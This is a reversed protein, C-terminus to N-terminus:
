DFQPKKGRVTAVAGKIIDWDTRGVRVLNWASNQSLRTYFWITILGAIVYALTSALAAGIVGYRPILILNGVVNVALSVGAAWGNLDPRGRAMLDPSLVMVSTYAVIGPLLWRLVAATQAYDPGFALNVIWDVTAALTVAIGLGALTVWRAVIPTLQRRTEEAAHLGALRPLLVTAAAAPILWLQEAIRVAVTYIGAGAPGLFLNVLFIDLRYNLFALIHSLYSKLGYKLDPREPSNSPANASEAACHQRVFWASLALGCMQGSAWAVVAGSAGSGAIWVLLIVAVLAAAPNILMTLNYRRFDQIGHLMSSLSNYFWVAPFGCAGIWLLQPPIGPFLRDSAHAVLIASLAAGCAVVLSGLRLNWRLVVHILAGRGLAYVSAARMGLSLVVALVGPLLIAVAYQGYGEPGLMHALLVVASIQLILSGVRQLLNAGVLSVIERLGLGRTM